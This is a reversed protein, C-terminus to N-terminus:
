LSVSPELVQEQMIYGDKVFTLKISSKKKAEAYAQDMHKKDPTIEGRVPISITGPTANCVLKGDHYVQAGAPTSSVNISMQIEPTQIPKKAAATLISGLATCVTVFLVLSKKM